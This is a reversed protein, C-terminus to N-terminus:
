ATLHFPIGTHHYFAPMEATPELISKGDSNLRYLRGLTLYAPQLSLVGVTRPTLYFRVAAINNRYALFIDGHRHTGDQDIWGFRLLGSEVTPGFPRDPDLPKQSM